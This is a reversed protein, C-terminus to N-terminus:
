VSDEDSLNDFDDDDVEDCEFEESSSENKKSKKLKKKLTVSNEVISKELDDISQPAKKKSKPPM